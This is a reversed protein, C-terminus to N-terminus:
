ALSVVIADMETRISKEIAKSVTGIKKSAREIRTCEGSITDFDELKKRVSEVRTQIALIDVPTKEEKAIEVGLRIKAWQYAINLIEWHMEPADPHSGVACVLKNDDVETFWGVDPIQEKYRAIHIAYGAERNELSSNLGELIKPLKLEEEKLEITFRRAPKGEQSGNHNLTVVFDGTKRGEKGPIKTVDKVIDHQDVCIRQLYQFFEEEFILGKKTSNDIEERRGIEKDLEKRIVTLETAIEHFDKM